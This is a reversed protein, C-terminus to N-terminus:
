NNKYKLELERLWAIHKAYNQSEDSGYRAIAASEFEDIPGVFCGAYVMIVGDILYARCTRGKEKRFYWFKSFSKPIKFPPNKLVWFRPIKDSVKRYVTMWYDDGQPTDIWIFPLSIFNNTSDELLLIGKDLYISYHMSTTSGDLINELWLPYIEPDIRDLIAKITRLKM